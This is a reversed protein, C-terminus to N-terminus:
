KEFQSMFACINPTIEDFTGAYKFFISWIKSHFGEFNSSNLAFEFTKICGNSNIEGFEFNNEMLIQSLKKLIWKWFVFFSFLFSCSSFRLGKSGYDSATGRYWNSNKLFFPSIFSSLQFCPYKQLFNKLSHLFYKM